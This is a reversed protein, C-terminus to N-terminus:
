VFLRHAAAVFSSGRRLVNKLFIRLFGILRTFWKVNKMVEVTLIECSAPLILNIKRMFKIPIMAVFTPIVPLAEM